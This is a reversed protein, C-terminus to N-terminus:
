SLGLHSVFTLTMFATMFIIVLILLTEKFLTMGPLRNEAQYLIWSGYIFSMPLDSITFVSFEFHSFIDFSTLLLSPVLAACLVSFSKSWLLGM